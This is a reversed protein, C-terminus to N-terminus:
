KGIVKRDGRPVKHWNIRGSIVIKVDFYKELDFM